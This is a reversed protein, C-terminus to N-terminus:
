QLLLSGVFNLFKENNTLDQGYLGIVIVEGNGYNLKYTAITPSKGEMPGEAGYDAIIIDSSNNVYEEEHHTYNFINNTFSVKANSTLSWFNGGTWEKTENFWRQDIGKEAFTSYFEFGHGKMLTVTNENENYSVEVHFFDSDIFLIMGGNNVFRKFDDYMKQTVYEEHFLIIVDFANSDNNLFLQGEYVDQDRINTITANPLIRKVENSFITMNARDRDVVISNTLQGLHATLKDLDAAIKVDKPISYYKHYFDYFARTYAAETFTPEVFAIRSKLRLASSENSKDVLTLNSALNVTDPSSVPGKLSSNYSIISSNVNPIKGPNEEITKIIINHYALFLVIGAVIAVPLIITIAKENM